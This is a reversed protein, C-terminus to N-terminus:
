LWACASCLGADAESGCCRSTGTAVTPRVASGRVLKGAGGDCLKSGAALMGLPSREAGWESTLGANLEETQSAGHTDHHNRSNPQHVTIVMSM